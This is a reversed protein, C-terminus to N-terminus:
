PKLSYIVFAEHELEVPGALAIEGDGGVRLVVAHSCGIAALSDLFSPRMMDKSTATWGNRHAIYLPTPIAASNVVILDERAGVREM